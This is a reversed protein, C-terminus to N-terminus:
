IVFYNKIKKGKGVQGTVMEEEEDEEEEEEEEEWGEDQPEEESQKKGDKSKLKAPRTELNGNMEMTRIISKAVSKSTVSNLTNGFGTCCLIVFM